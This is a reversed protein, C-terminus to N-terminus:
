GFLPPSISSVASSIASNAQSQANNAAYQVDSVVGQVDNQISNISDQVQNAAPQLFLNGIDPAQSTQGNFKLNSGSFISNVTDQVGRDLTSMGSTIVDKTSAVLDSGMNILDNIAGLGGRIAGGLGSSNDGSMDPNTPLDCPSKGAMISGGFGGSGSSMGGGGGGGGASPSDAGGNSGSSGGGAGLETNGWNYLNGGGGTECKLADYHFILTMLSGNTDEMSLEDFDFSEIRPNIFIFKNDAHGNGFIQQITITGGTSYGKNYARSSSSTRNGGDIGWGGSAQHSINRMYSAFFQNVTDANEDLFTMSMPAFVVNTLVKTRFNYYNVDQHVLQVKPKDCRHVYRYFNLPQGPFGKFEVKFLFKFKPQHPILDDAYHVSTWERGSGSFSMGQSTPNTRLVPPLVTDLVNRMQQAASPGLQQQTFQDVKQGLSSVNNLVDGVGLKNFAGSLIPDM